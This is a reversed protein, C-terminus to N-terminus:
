KVEDNDLNPLLMQWSNAPLLQEWLPEGISLHKCAVYLYCSLALDYLPADPRSGAMTEIKRRDGDRAASRASRELEALRPVAKSLAPEPFPPCTPSATRDGIAATLQPEEGEYFHLTGAFHTYTGAEMGCESAVALLLHGFIYLDYPLVTLVQQARMMTLLHLRDERVFFQIASACPFERGPSLTDRPEIISAYLRRSSPDASILERISRIQGSLSGGDGFLRRGFSGCLTLGDDSFEIAGPRYYALTEVDDAGTLFWPLYALLYPLHLSPRARATLCRHPNALHRVSARMERYPRDRQGFDSAKSLPDRVSSVVSGNEIVEALWAVYLEDASQHIRDGLAM